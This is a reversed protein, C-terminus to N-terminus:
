KNIDSLFPQEVSDVQILSVYFRPADEMEVLLDSGIVLDSDLFVLM